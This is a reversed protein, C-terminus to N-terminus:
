SAGSLPLSPSHIHQAAQMTNHHVRGGMSNFFNTIQHLRPFEPPTLSGARVVAPAMWPALQRTILWAGADGWM